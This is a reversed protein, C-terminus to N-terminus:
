RCDVGVDQPQKVDGTQYQWAVQLKSVNEPTIQTLPSYRQGYPTRGYQHWEGDPVNGGLDPSSVVKETPLDGSTNWPDQTMSYGAVVLAALTAITLPLGGGNLPKRIWPTLLWLGLLVIVGGTSGLGWWDFGVESVAWGLAGLIVIAYIWLAIASRKLLFFGTLLFGIAAIVFFWSGGLTVLYIGAAGLGLGILLLLIATLSVLM